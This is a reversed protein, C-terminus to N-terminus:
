KSVKLGISLRKPTARLAQWCEWHSIRQLFHQWFQFIGILDGAANSSKIVMEKPETRTTKYTHIIFKSGRFHM